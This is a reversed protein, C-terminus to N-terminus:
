IFKPGRRFTKEEIEEVRMLEKNFEPHFSLIRKMGGNASTKMAYTRAEKVDETFGKLGSIWYKNEYIIVFM